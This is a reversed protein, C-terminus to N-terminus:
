LLMGVLSTRARKPSAIGTSGGGIAWFSGCAWCIAACAVAIAWASASRLFLSRLLTLWVMSRAM